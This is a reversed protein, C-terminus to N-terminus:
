LLVKSVFRDIETKPDGGHRILWRRVSESKLEARRMEVFRASFVGDQTHMKVFDEIKGGRRRRKGKGKNASKRSGLRSMVFSTMLDEEAYQLLDEAHHIAFLVGDDTSLWFNASSFDVEKAPDEDAWGEQESEMTRFSALFVGSGIKTIDDSEGAEKLLKNAYDLINM